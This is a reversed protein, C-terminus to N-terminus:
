KKIWKLFVRKVQVLKQTINDGLLLQVKHKIKQGKTHWSGDFHHIMVTNSTLTIKYTEISKPSFYDIPYISVGNIKQLEGNQCLGLDLLKHTTYEVNTITNLTNDDLVFKRNKYDLLLNQIISTHKESGIIATSINHISEFGFFVTNDLFPDLHGVLECDTDMYIGGENYLAFLRAYDSVFAWKKNLYAEQVYPISEIDINSENWEKITYEPCYKSWSEICKLVSKPKEGQGFWCYHIRKNIM